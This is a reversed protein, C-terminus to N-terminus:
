GRPLATIGTRAIEKIGYGSVLSIFAEIKDPGGTVEVTITSPSVDVVRSRFISAYSMIDTRARPDHAHVKILALERVVSDKPELVSVKIVDILKGLQKVIQEVTSEDGAVTITMRALDRPEIPGVSISEINFGRRRFMNAARFLVGPKNEVITSLIYTQGM